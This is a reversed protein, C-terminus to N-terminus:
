SGFVLHDPDLWQLCAASDGQCQTRGCQRNRCRRWCLMVTVADRRSSAM